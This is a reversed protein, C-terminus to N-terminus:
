MRGTGGSSSGRLFALSVKKSVKGSLTSKWTLATAQLDWKVSGFGYLQRMALSGITQALTDFRIGTQRFFKLPYSCLQSLYM